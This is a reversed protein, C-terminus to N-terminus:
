PQAGPGAPVPCTQPKHQPWEGLLREGTSRPTTPAESPLHWSGPLCPLRHTCTTMTLLFKQCPEGGGVSVSAGLGDIIQGSLLKQIPGLSLQPATLDGSGREAGVGEERERLSKTPLPPPTGETM